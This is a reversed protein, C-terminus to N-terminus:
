AKFLYARDLSELIKGTVPNLQSFSLQDNGKAMPRTFYEADKDFYVRRIIQVDVGEEYGAREGVAVILKFGQKELYNWKLFAGEEHSEPFKDIKLVKARGYPILESPSNDLELSPFFHNLFLGGFYHPSFERKM